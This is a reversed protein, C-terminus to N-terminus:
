GTRRSSRYAIVALAIASLAMLGGLAYSVIASSGTSRTGIVILVIAIGANFAIRSGSARPGQANM